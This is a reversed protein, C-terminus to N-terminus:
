LKWLGYSWKRTEEAGKKIKHHIVKVPDGLGPLGDIDNFTVFLWPTRSAKFNEIAQEIHGPKYLHNLVYICQIMDFGAPIIEKVCDFSTVEPSRPHQDFGQVIVDSFWEVKKMWNQDGCGVDAILDINYLSVLEPLVRRILSTESIKAGKGCPTERGGSLWTSPYQNM